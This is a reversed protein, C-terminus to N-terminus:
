SNVLNHWQTRVWLLQHAVGFIGIIGFVSGPPDQVATPSVTYTIISQITLKWTASAHNKQTGFHSHCRGGFCSTMQMGVCCYVLAFFMDKSLYWRKTEMISLYISLILVNPSFKLQRSTFISLIKPTSKRYKAKLHSM